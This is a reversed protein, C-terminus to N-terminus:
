PYTACSRRGWWGRSGCRCRPSCGSRCRWRPTARISRRRPARRAPLLVPLRAARASLGHPAQLGGRGSGKRSRGFDFVRCGRRVAEEM